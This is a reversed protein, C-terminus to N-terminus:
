SPSKLSLSHMIGPICKSIHVLLLVYLIIFSYVIHWHYKLKYFIGVICHAVRILMVAMYSNLGSDANLKMVKGASCSIKSESLNVM